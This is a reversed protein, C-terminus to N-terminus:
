FTEPYSIQIQEYEAQQGPVVQEASAVPAPTNQSSQRAEQPRYGEQYSHETAPPQEHYTRQYTRSWRYRPTTYTKPSRGVFFYILAGIAGTVIIVFIWIARQIDPLKKNSVCDILMWIWFVLLALPVLAVLLGVIILLVVFFFM